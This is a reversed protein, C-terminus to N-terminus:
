FCTDWINNLVMEINNLVDRNWFRLAKYGLSELYETRAQDYAAQDIHQSGDVEIIIKPNFSIFDIIYNGLIVQRRFRIAGFKKNRLHAWLKKEAITMNKRLTRSREKLVISQMKKIGWGAKPWRGGPPTLRELGCKKSYKTYHHFIKLLCWSNHGMSINLYRNWRATIACNKDLFGPVM